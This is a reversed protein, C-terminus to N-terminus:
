SLPNRGGAKPQTGAFTQTYVTLRSTIEPSSLCLLSPPGCLSTDPWSGEHCQPWPLQPHVCWSWALPQEPPWVDSVELKGWTAGELEQLRLIGKPAWLLAMLLCWFVLGHDGEGCVWLFYASPLCCPSSPFGFRLGGAKLFALPCPGPSRSM